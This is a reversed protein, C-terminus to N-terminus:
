LWLPCITQSVRKQFYWVCFLPSPSHNL